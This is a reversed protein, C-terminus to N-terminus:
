ANIHDFMIMINEKVVICYFGIMFCGEIVIRDFQGLLTMRCHYSQILDYFTIRCHHIRISISADGSLSVLRILRSADESLLMLQIPGFADGSLLM